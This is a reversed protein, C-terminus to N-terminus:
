KKNRISNSVLYPVFGHASTQLRYVSTTATIYLTDLDPDGWALNAPQEPTQITGLHRGSPDWIWIGGPGTVYINGQQDVKMGDPVGEGKSGPEEGFVRGNELTGNPRFDYVRINRKESDDVYFRRGDPSFALGNPQSLESTLLTVQGKSDLRFVGQFPLEKKEGAQLDLTPDTFYIAGDPGMVVDNPSNFRKGEFKDALVEYKGAADIRIIARLYSACDLLRQHSDYTNGDPDGLSILEEKHGDGYIRFIKNLEEDSVYLFGKPDWVPGETFRLGSAFTQLTADRPILKWFEPSEAVLAFKRQMPPTAAIWPTAVISACIAFSIALISLTKRLTNVPSPRLKATDENTPPSKRMKVLAEYPSIREPSKNQM